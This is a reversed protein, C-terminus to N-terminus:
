KEKLAEFLGSDLNIFQKQHSQELYQIAAQSRIGKQCYIVIPEQLESIAGKWADIQSLPFNKGGINFAQHEYDERVDILSFNSQEDQWQKLTAYNISKMDIACNIEIPTLESINKNKADAKFSLSNFSMSLTDFTILKGSSVDGTKTIIKICELAQLNGMIGPLVGIVGAESCNPIEHANPPTPFLDRYNPGEQYNFVSLQGEFQYISAHVLPKKAIVCADNILYRSTFNDTGDLVVDHEAILQLTNNEDIRTDVAIIEVNPNQILLKDAAVKAKNKGLDQGNFLVQRHLNSHSVQDYDVITIKGVGAAVLYPLSACGLGGAGIVLVKSEKLLAQGVEGIQPLTLHRLYRKKEEASFM